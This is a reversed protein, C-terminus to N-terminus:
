SWCFALTLTTNAVQEQKESTALFYMYSALKALLGSYSILSRLFM